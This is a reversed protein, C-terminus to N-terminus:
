RHGNEGRGPRTPSSTPGVPGPVQQPMQAEGSLGFGTHHTSRPFSPHYETGDKQPLIRTVERFGEANKSYLERSPLINM